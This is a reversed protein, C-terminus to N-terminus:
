KRVWPWEWKVFWSASAQDEARPSVLWAVPRLTWLPTQLSTPLILEWRQKSELLTSARWVGTM